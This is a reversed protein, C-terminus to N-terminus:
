AATTVSAFCFDEPLGDWWDVSCMHEATHQLVFRGAM